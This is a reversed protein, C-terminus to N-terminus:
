GGAGGVGGGAGAIRTAENEIWVAVSGGRWTSFIAVLREGM